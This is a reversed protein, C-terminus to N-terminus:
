KIRPVSFQPMGAAYAEVQYEQFTFNISDKGITFAAFNEPRPELGEPFQVSGYESALASSASESLGQLTEGTMALADDLTLFKENKIDYNIGIATSLGHAGGSYQSLLLRVSIIDDGRYVSDFTSNFENKFDARSDDLPIATIDAIGNDVTEKIKADLIPVGFVPYSAEVDYASTSEAITSTSVEGAQSAPETVPAQWRLFFLAVGLAVVAACFFLLFARM